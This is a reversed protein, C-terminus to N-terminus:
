FFLNDFMAIAIAGFLPIIGWIAGLILAVIQKYWHCITKWEEVTINKDRSKVKQFLSPKVEEEEEEIKQYSKKKM